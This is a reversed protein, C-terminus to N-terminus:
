KSREELPTASKHFRSARLSAKLTVDVKVNKTWMEVFREINGSKNDWERKEKALIM